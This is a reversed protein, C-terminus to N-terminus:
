GGGGAAPAAEKRGRIRAAWQGLRFRIEDWAGGRNTSIQRAMHRLLHLAILTLIVNPLWMAVVPNMQGRDAFREGGILGMWYFFFIGVSGAIALGAGGRPFRIALPPGLLIFVLCAFAIAYKKHMEVRYRYSANRHVNWRAMNVRYVNIINEMAGDGVGFGVSPTPIALEVDDTERALEAEIQERDLLMDAETARGLGLSERVTEVSIQLSEDAVERLNELNEEVRGQLMQVGMEREGRRSGGTRRELEAGVGRFPMVQSEFEMRQFAGPRDRSTEYLVGDELTLYLDSHDATFAMDGRKAVITRSEGVQSLDFIEVDTMRNTAPDISRARLYYRSDDGTHVENVVDERLEFTPSKSGVDSLLSSLRHNSEPLVRDNFLFMATSLLLGVGLLPVLLRLPHVGGAAMATVENQSTMDSFTYLVAVLIAMPFTLAVIHPFSLLMFEGIVTWELGKGAFNELRQAVANLFLLGTVATFAFLFPGSHARIMYRTLIKM